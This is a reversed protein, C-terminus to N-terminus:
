IATSLRSTKTIKTNMNMNLSAPLYEYSELCVRHYYRLHSAEGFLFTHSNLQKPTQYYALSPEVLSVQIQLTGIGFLPLHM